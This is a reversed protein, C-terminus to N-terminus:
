RRPAESLDRGDYTWMRTAEVSPCCMADDPGHEVVDVEISREAIRAERLRVRDGILATARNSVGAGSNTFVAIHNRTGSGGTATWLFAVTEEIGDGDLDAVVSLDGIVGATPRSAGGAVYPEGEWRGDRLKVPDEFLGVVTSNRIEDLTPATPAESRTAAGSCGALCAAVLGIYRPRRQEVIM